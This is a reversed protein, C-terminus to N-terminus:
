RSGAGPTPINAAVAEWWHVRKVLLKCLVLVSLSQTGHKFLVGLEAELLGWGM